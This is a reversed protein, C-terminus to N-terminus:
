CSKFRKTTDAALAIVFGVFSKPQLFFVYNKEKKTKDPQVAVLPLGLQSHTLQLNQQKTSCCFLQSSLLFCPIM